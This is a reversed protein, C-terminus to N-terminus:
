FFFAASSSVLVHNGTEALSRDGGGKHRRGPGQHVHQPVLGARHLLVLPVVAHSQSDPVPLPRQPPRGLVQVGWSQGALVVSTLPDLAEAANMFLVIVAAILAGQPQADKRHRRLM